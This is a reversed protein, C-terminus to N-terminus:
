HGVDYVTVYITARYCGRSQPRAPLVTGGLRLYFRGNEGFSGIVPAHPDFPLGHPARDGHFDALGDRPGFSVTLRAGDEATLASPLVFEVRVSAEEPGRVQFLGAHHPDSPSVSAPVGPFITGFDLENLALVQLPEEHEPHGSRVQARLPAVGVSLAACAALLSVVFSRGMSLRRGHRDVCWWRAAVM